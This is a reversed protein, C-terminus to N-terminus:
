LSCVLGRCWSSFVFVSVWVVVIACGFCLLWGEEEWCPSQLVLFSVLVVYCFLSWVCSELFPPLLLCYTLMFLIVVKSFAMSECLAQM